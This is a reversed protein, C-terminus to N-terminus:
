IFQIRKITTSSEDKQRKTKMKKFRRSYTQSKMEFFESIKRQWNNKEELYELLKLHKM